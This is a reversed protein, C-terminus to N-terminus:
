GELCERFVILITRMTRIQNEVDEFLALLINHNHADIQVAVDTLVAILDGNTESLRRFFLSRITAMNEPSIPDSM